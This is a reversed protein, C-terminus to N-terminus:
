KKTHEAIIKVLDEKSVLGRLRTIEKGDKYVVITPLVEIGKDISFKKYNDVNIKGVKASGKYEKAVSELIPAMRRCPGCWPAWFDVFVLGTGTEKEYNSSTLTVIPTDNNTTNNNGFVSNNGLLITLTMLVIGLIPLTIKRRM